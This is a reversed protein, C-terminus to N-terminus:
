APCRLGSVVRPNRSITMEKPRPQPPDEGRYSVLPLTPEVGSVLPSCRFNCPVLHGPVNAPSLSSTLRSYTFIGLPCSGERKCPRPGLQHSLLSRPKVSAEVTGASMSLFCAQPILVPLIFCETVSYKSGIVCMYRCVVGWGSLCVRWCESMCVSVSWVCVCVCVCM